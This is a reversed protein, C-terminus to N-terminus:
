TEGNNALRRYARAKERYFKPLQEIEENSWSALEALLEEAEYLEKSRIHVM